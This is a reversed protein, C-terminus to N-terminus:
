SCPHSAKQVQFLHDLKSRDNKVSYWGVQSSSYDELIFNGSYDEPIFYFMKINCCTITIGFIRDPLIKISSNPVVVYVYAETYGCCKVTHVYTIKNATVTLVTM